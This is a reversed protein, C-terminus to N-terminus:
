RRPVPDFAGAAKLLKLAALQAALEETAAAISATRLAATADAQEVATAAGARYSVDVLRQNEQALKEQEKAKVANARASELDLLSQRVETVARNEQARRSATAEAVKASGERLEAERLGGDFLTWNLALGIAWSDKQGSLGATDSVNWQGFAGLNPLYRGATARRLEAALDENRRAAQLDPRKELASTELGAADAPVPPEPPEVVEFNPDRDLLNALAFRASEYGNLARILDQDARSLDIQARLYAVKAITGAQLRIKADKEQRQATALLEQAVGALKKASAVGYYVQAVGFLVDRRAQETSLAAVDEGAYAARISFWLSPTVLAQTVQAQGSLSDLPQVVIPPAGPFAIASEQDNRLYTASATVQPLHFSWAKWVGARAQELRSQAVQLDLNAENARRLADALTLVPGAPVALVAPSPALLPAAAPAAATATPTPAPAPAQALTLAALAATLTNM